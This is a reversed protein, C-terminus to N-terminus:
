AWKLQYFTATAADVFKFIVQRPTVASFGDNNYTAPAYIWVFDKDIELGARILQNKLDIADSPTIHNIVVRHM